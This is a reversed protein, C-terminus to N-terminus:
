DVDHAMKNIHKELKEKAVPVSHNAGLQILGDLCAIMGFCLVAQEEKMKKIDEDQEKQRLFWRFVAFVAVILAGVASLAGAYESVTKAIETM